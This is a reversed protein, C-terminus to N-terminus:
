SIYLLHADQKHLYVQNLLIIFFYQYEYFFLSRETWTYMNQINCLLNSKKNKHIDVTLYWKKILKVIITSNSFYKQRQLCDVVLSHHFTGKQNVFPSRHLTKWVFSNVQM